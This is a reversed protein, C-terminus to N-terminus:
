GNLGDGVKVLCHESFITMIAQIHPKCCNGCVLLVYSNNITLYSGNNIKDLMRVKCQNLNSLITAIISNM